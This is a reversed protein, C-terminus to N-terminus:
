SSARARCGSSVGAVDIVEVALSFNGNALLTALGPTYGGAVTAVATAIVAGNGVVLVVSSGPSASGVIRPENVNTIGDGAIGSDDATFLSPVSPASPRTTLITLTFFASPASFNGFSDMGRAAIAYTGDALSSSPAITYAGASNATSSGIVAGTSTVLQVTLGVAATGVLRPQSVRTTGDGVLGSDDSAFLSPASPVPVTIM